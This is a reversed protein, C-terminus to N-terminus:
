ADTETEDGVVVTPARLTLVLGHSVSGLWARKWGTLRRSGVVVMFENDSESRLGTVPHKRLLVPVIHLEPHEQKVLRVHHDLLEQHVTEHYAVFAESPVVLPDEALPEQWCHVVKLRAGLSAAEGAAYRLALESIDSEDIGVMVGSRGQAVEPEELPVIAVPGSAASALRAGLSWGYTFHPTVRQATGVVVLTGPRTKEALLSLPDGVLLHSELRANPYADALDCRREELRERALDRARELRLPEDIFDAADVVDFLEVRRGGSGARRLAWEAAADAPASDNWCVVTRSTM